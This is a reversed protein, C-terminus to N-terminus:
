SVQPIDQMAESKAGLVELGDNEIAEFNAQPPKAAFRIMETTQDPSLMGRAKQGPLVKCKSIPILQPHEESGCNVLM